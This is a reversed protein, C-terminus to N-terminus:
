LRQYKLFGVATKGAYQVPDRVPYHCIHVDNVSVTPVPKGDLVLADNGQAVQVRETVLHAPIMVKAQDWRPPLRMRLRLVPNIESNFSAEEDWVFDSWPVLLVRPEFGSLWETLKVNHPPEIFEDADLPMVWDAGFQNVAMQLLLTMYRSQDYVISEKTVIVVPLGTARMSRLIQPTDDSSGDDLVILKHFHACTHRVFPEIIDAENRVRTVAVLKM